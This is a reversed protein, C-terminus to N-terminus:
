AGETFFIDSGRGAVGRGYFFSFFDDLGKGGYSFFAGEMFFFFFITRAGAAVGRGYSLFFITPAREEMHFFHQLGCKRKERESDVNTFTITKQM